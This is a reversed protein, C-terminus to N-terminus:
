SGPRRKQDVLSVRGAENQPFSLQGAQGEALSLQGTEGVALSLQGPSIGSLRSQIEAVAQEAARRFNRESYREAAEKLPLVAAASGCRGLALAAARAADPHRDRGLAALLPGEAAPAGTEALARAAHVALEGDEIALVKALVGVASSEGNRGLRQLCAHATGLRRTRLARDLIALAREVSLESDLAYVASAVSTDDLVTSEAIEFIIDIRPRGLAMAARLRVEPYSDDCAAELTELTLPRDGFERSLLLLNRLRVLPMPDHLAHDALREAVDLRAFIGRGAELAATLARPLSAPGTNEGDRVELTLVGNEIEVRGWVHLRRLLLRRMDADLLAHVTAPAGGIFFAADFAGDGIEIEAAETKKWEAFTRVGETRIVLSPRPGLPADVCIRLGARKNEEYPYIRVRLEGSRGTAVPHGVVPISVVIDTLRHEEMAGRVGKMRQQMLVQQWVLPVLAFSGALLAVAIIDLGIM